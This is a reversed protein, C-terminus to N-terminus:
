QESISHVKFLIWCMSILTFMHKEFRVKTGPIRVGNPVVTGPVTPGLLKTCEKFNLALIACGLADLIVYRSTKM